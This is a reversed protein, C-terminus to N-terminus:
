IRNNLENAQSRATRADDLLRRMRNGVRQEFISSEPADKGPMTQAPAEPPYGFLRGITQSQVSNVSSLVDIVEDLMTEIRESLPQSQVAALSAPEGAYGRATNAEM